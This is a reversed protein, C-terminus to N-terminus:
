VQGFQHAWSDMNQHPLFRTKRMKNGEERERGVPRTTKTWRDKGIIATRHGRIVVPKKAVRVVFDICSM